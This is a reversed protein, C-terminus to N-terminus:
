EMVQHCRDAVEEGTRPNRSMFVETGTLAKRLADTQVAEWYVFTGAWTTGLPTTGVAQVQFPGRFPVDDVRYLILKDFTNVVLIKNVDDLTVEYASFRSSQSRIPIETKDCTMSFVRADARLTTLMYGTVGAVIAYPLLILIKILWPKM